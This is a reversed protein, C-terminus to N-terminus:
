RRRKAILLMGMGAVVIPGPAPIVSPDDGQRAAWEEFGAGSSHNQGFASYLYFYDTPAAGALAEEPILMTMDGSGSGHGLDYNLKIWNDADSDLSYRLTGLSALNTTTLSGATGTYIRVEDLSLLANTGGNSENIDLRFEFYVTDGVKTRGLESVRVDHTWISPVEDYPLPRGSTNYGEETGNHQIRVFPQFVGTGTPQDTNTKFIAGNLTGSSGATTLDIMAAGSVSALGALGMLAVATKTTFM